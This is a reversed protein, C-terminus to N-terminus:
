AAAEARMGAAAPFPTAAAMLATAVASATDEWGPLTARRERAARRLRERLSADELWRRLAAGFAEPNGPPVLLGGHGLAEPVGGVDTALVPVGRALAETVVMGYTEGRSALVLLDAAADRQRARRRHAPWHLASTARGPRWRASCSMMASAPPATSAARVRLPLGTGDRDALGGLLVDHCKGRTVAAVCLLAGGDASGPALDAADFM